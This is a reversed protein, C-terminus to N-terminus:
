QPTDMPTLIKWRGDSERKWEIAFNGGVTADKGSKDKYGTVYKGTEFARDGLLWFDSRTLTLTIRGMHTIWNGWYKRLEDRGRVVRGNELLETAATDYVALVANIDAEGFAKIYDAHSQDIGHEASLVEPSPAPAAGQANLPAGIMGTLVLAFSSVRVIGRMVGQMVGQVIDRRIFTHTQGSHGEAQRTV